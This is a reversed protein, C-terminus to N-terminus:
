RIREGRPAPADRRAIEGTAPAPRDGIAYFYGDRAGVFIRGKWVAPTSEICAKTPVHIRWDLHPRAPDRIDYRRIEGHCTAVLLSDDVVVPSSWAHPGVDDVFLMRGDRRDVAALMGSNTTIYVVRDTVAPTAWIGGKPDDLSPPVPLSWVVPDDPRSPDLKLLQGVEDTRPLYRELEVAVYLMGEEDVVVSADIDDGAWFDFVVPARGAHIRAIDLGVIRGASNAFYLRDGRIAVSSEISVNKDGVRDLLEPTWGRFALLPEPAVRIRGRMDYDRHLRFAFLYGNEGGEFLIDDHVLPNGDWDNNWMGPVFDAPLSWLQRPRRGDLSLIRLRNDRSGFYLLPDGDPDLTVSGKIIDGTVFDPRTRRGTDADLFHVARDFAGFIVECVGDPREWVVPQGTWGTGCWTRTENGVRSEACMPRDPFRWLIEPNSPVPGAGHYTRSANGRFQLLGAVVPPRRVRIPVLEARWPPDDAPKLPIELPFMIMGFLIGAACGAAPLLRAGRGVWAARMRRKSRPARMLGLFDELIERPEDCDLRQEDGIAM